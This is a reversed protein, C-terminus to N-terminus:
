DSIRSVVDQLVYHVFEQGLESLEYRDTDDFSSKMTDSSPARPGRRSKKMFQGLSNVEREQRIVRGTSLDHILMRYLDASSSNESPLEGTNGMERWIGLLSIGPNKYIARIIGFHAEHYRDIWDIFLRVIDDDTVSTGAANKLLFQVLERKDDTEARDWVGFGKKVLALYDDEQIRQKAEEGLLEIGQAVSSLARFLAELKKEHEKLWLEINENIRGQEKEAHLAAGGAIMGGVWPVSGLAAIAFRAYTGKESEPLELSKSPKDIAGSEVEIIEKNSM